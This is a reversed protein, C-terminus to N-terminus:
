EIKDRKELNHKACLIQINEKVLSSGGKSFPINHDFHLNQTSHCIVCKGGDRKWVERKVSSPILRNHDLKGDSKKIQTNDTIELRFKFVGRDNLNEKWSDTLKFMGNYSWIGPKINEYVKVIEPKRDYMKFSLAAEHFLGNQTLKGTETKLEQNVIKPNPGDRKRPIDHGEYILVKGNDLVKDGYPAGKRVSMLIISVRGKPRFNMGRQLSLGEEQCMEPYSIIQGPDFM